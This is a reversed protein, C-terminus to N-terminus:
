FSGGTATTFSHTYNPFFAFYFFCIIISFCFCCSGKFIITDVHFFKYFFRPMNFNLNCTILISVNAVKAFSIARNLAAMLFQYFFRRRREHCCIKTFFHTCCCDLCCLGDVVFTYSCDFEKYIFVAIKVEHFHICTDLYFMTNCFFHDVVVEYFFLNFYCHAFLDYAFSIIRLHVSNFAAYICFIRVIIEPWRRSLYSHQVLRTAMTNSYIAM